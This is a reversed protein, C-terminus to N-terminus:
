RTDTWNHVHMSIYLATISLLTCPHMHSRTCIICRIIGTCCVCANNMARLKTRSTLCVVHGTWGAIQQQRGPSLSSTPKLRLSVSRSVSLSFPLSLPLSLSKFVATVFLFQSLWRCHAFFLRCCSQASCFWSLFHSYFIYSMDYLSRLLCHFALRLSMWSWVDCLFPTPLCLSLCSWSFALFHALM